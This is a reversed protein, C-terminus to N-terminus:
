ASVHNASIRTGGGVTSALTRDVNGLHDEFLAPVFLLEAIHLSQQGVLEREVDAAVSSDGITVLKCGNDAAPMEFDVRDGCVLVHGRHAGREIPRVLTSPGVQWWGPPADGDVVGEEEPNHVAEDGFHPLDEKSGGDACLRLVVV